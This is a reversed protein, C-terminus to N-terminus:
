VDPLELHQANSPHHPLPRRPERVGAPGEDPPGSEPYIHTLGSPGEDRSAFAAVDDSRLRIVRGMKYAPLHGEDIFRYLTRLTVGLHEAADRTGM